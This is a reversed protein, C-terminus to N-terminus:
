SYLAIACAYIYLHILNDNPLIQISQVLLPWIAILVQIYLQELENYSAVYLM